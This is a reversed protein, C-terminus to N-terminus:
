FLKSSWRRGLSVLASHDLFTSFDPADAHSFLTGHSNSLICDAVKNRDYDRADSTVNDPKQIETKKMVNKRRQFLYGNGRAQWHRVKWSGIHMNM